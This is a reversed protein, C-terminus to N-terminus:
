DPEGASNGREEIVNDGAQSMSRQNKPLKNRKPLVSSSCCYARLRSASRILDPLVDMVLALALSM